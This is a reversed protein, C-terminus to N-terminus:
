GADAAFKVKGIVAIEQRKIKWSDGTKVLDWYYDVSFAQRRFFVIFKATSSATAGDDGVTTFQGAPHHAVADPANEYFSRLEDKGSYVKGYVKEADFVGDETYLDLVGDWGEHDCHHCYRAALEQIELKALLDTASM